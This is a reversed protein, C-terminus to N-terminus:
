CIIILFFRSYSPPPSANWVTSDGGWLLTKELPSRASEGKLFYFSLFFSLSNFLGTLAPSFFASIHRYHIILTGNILFAPSSGTNQTTTLPQCFVPEMKESVPKQNGIV